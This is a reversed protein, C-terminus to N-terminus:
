TLFSIRSVEFCPLTSFASIPFFDFCCKSVTEREDEHQDKVVQEKEVEEQKEKLYDNDKKGLTIFGVLLPM